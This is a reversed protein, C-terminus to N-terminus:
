KSNEKIFRFIRASLLETAGVAFGSAQLKVNVVCENFAAYNGLTLSVGSKAIQDIIAKNAPTFWVKPHRGKVVEKNLLFQAAWMVKNLFQFPDTVDLLARQVQTFKGTMAGAVVDIVLRDDNGETSQIVKSVQELTFRAPKTKLGDYYQSIGQLMNALSRMESNSSKIVESLLQSSKMYDMGEGVVIRKAQTMLDEETHPELAFQTSCRNAMAKGNGSTFKGPEMSGLIWVTDTSGAEELPKLLATAATNNSLISQAEDLMFIRKKGQPKFRAVKILDRIDEISRETGLNVEKYDSSQQSVPKGNIEAAICRALTTKGVSSPGTILIANPIKKGSAFIGRLRTVATKHGILADLTQPRYKTHFYSEDEQTM